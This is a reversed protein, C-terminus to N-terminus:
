RLDRVLRDLDQPKEWIFPMRTAMLGSRRLKEVMRISNEENLSHIVFFTRKFRAKNQAIWTVVDGGCGSIKIDTGHQHLDYDLFILDPTHDQLWLIVQSAQSINTVPVGFIGRRFFVIRRPDDDVILISSMVRIRIQSYEMM